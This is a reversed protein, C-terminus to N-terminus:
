GAGSRNFVDNGFTSTVTAAEGLRAVGFIDEVTALLSFDNYDTRSVTSPRVFPSLVVAGTIGGGPGNIGPEAAAPGPHEGCCAADAEAGTEAEDFTVVLMGNEKFAASSTIMPVWTELFSDYDAYASEGSPENVCPFDHGDECLNPTIFSYNPTTAVSRLDTALGTEGPLASAPMQGDPSGLAVVHSDCAQRDDIISHFYMFPDHRTAYGDGRVAVETSDASGITPHGCAASERGAINGMDQMYAKWTFGASTLQSAITQVDRPYVCGNGTEIGGPGLTGAVDVFRFCDDQTDTVPPQGSIMAIYNDLSAHGIAYFNPLLAGEGVLTTALYPDDSPTGFTTSYSENELVIVFVHRIESLEFPRPTSTTATTSTGSDTSSGATSSGATSSLPPAPAHAQPSTSGCGGLVVVLVSTLVAVLFIQKAARRPGTGRTM